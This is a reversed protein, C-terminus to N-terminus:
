INNNLRATNTNPPSKMRAAGQGMLSKGLVTTHSTLSRRELEREKDILQKYTMHTRAAIGTLLHQRLYCKVSMRKRTTGMVTAWVQQCRKCPTKLLALMSYTRAQNKRM